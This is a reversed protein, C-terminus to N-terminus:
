VKEMANHPEPPLKVTIRDGVSVVGGKLVIAMVGSKRIIKGDPAKHVLKSMLGSQFDDIQTCPNRLGTLQIVASGLHLLTDRPLGLLVIGRTLINEGLDGPKVVHGQRALETFLEEHILHVQRLNPQTPDVAVRSRHKVTVGRHCDGVVGEGAILEISRTTHKSFSHSASAAVAIVEPM